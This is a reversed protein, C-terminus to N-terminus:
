LGGRDERPIALKADIFDQHSLEMGKAISRIEEIEEFSTQDAANAVAFLCRLFDRRESLTTWRNFGKVLRVGDLGRFVRHHSIDVVLQAHEDSLKWESKMIDRMVNKEEPSVQQDVGAVRAMLGAALCLRRIESDTLNLSTGQDRLEMTVQFYITNKIFDELRSERDQEDTYHQGRLNLIMRLPRRLHELLGGSGQEIDERLQNVVETQRDSAQGDDPVLKGLAQLAVTKDTQSTMRGLVRNVLRQREEESVPSVMYLELEMWEEGSIEPLQFLLEKLGNMEAASLTGDAWAAGILLKGLELIFSKDAM